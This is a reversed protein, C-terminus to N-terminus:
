DRLKRGTYSLFVDDLTPSRMEVRLIACHGSLTSLIREIREAARPVQVEIEGPTAHAELAPDIQRLVALADDLRNSTPAIEIVVRDDGITSKLNVPTDLAILQGHDIIAVQDCLVDAETMYNTTVVATKGRDKLGRIHQWLVHSTQVDVGITPEDLFLIEPDHLLARGLALRRKMGGSYTKVRDRARDALGMLDLVADIRQKMERLDRGYLAYYYQLNEYASLDEYLATEQPVFGLLSRVARADRRPDLGRIQAAGATTSILGSMMNLTTTKGAGNPGLVGFVEGEQIDLSLSDVATLSGYCKTLDSLVIIPPMLVEQCVHYQIGVLQDTNL